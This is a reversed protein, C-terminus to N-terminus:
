RYKYVMYKFRGLDSTMGQKGTKSKCCKKYHGKKGSKHCTVDKAPCQLRPHAPKAGCIFCSRRKTESHEKDKSMKDRNSWETSKRGKQHKTQVKHIQTSGQQIATAATTATSVTHMISRQCNSNYLLTPIKIVREATLSDQVKELCKQYVEPNKLALLITNRLAMDKADEPWGCADTIQRCKKIYEPLEMDGQTLAKYQTAVVLKNGRPKCQEEVKGLHIEWKKHDDSSITAKDLINQRREGSWQYICLCVFELDAKTM